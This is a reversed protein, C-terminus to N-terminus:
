ILSACFLRARVKKVCKPKSTGSKMNPLIEPIVPLDEEDFSSQVVNVKAQLQFYLRNNNM